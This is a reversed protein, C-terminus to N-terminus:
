PGSSELTDLAFHSFSAALYRASMPMSPKPYARGCSSDPPIRWRTAMALARALVPSSSM